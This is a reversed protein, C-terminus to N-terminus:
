TLPATRCRPPSVSRCRPRARKKGWPSRTWSCRGWPPLLPTPLHSLVPSFKNTIRGTYSLPLCNFESELEIWINTISFDKLLDIFNSSLRITSKNENRLNVAVRGLCDVEDNLNKYFHSVFLDAVQSLHTDRSVKQFCGAFLAPYKCNRQENQRKLFHFVSKRSYGNLHNNIVVHWIVTNFVSNCHPLPGEKQNVWGRSKWWKITLKM